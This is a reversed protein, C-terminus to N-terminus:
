FQMDVERDDAERETRRHLVAPEVIGSDHQPLRGACRQRTFGGRQCDSVRLREGPVPGFDFAHLRQDGLRDQADSGSFGGEWAPDAM